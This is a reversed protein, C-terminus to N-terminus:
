QKMQKELSKLADKMKKMKEPDINKMLSDLKELGTKLSDGNLLKNMRDSIGTTDAPANNDNMFNKNKGAQEMGMKMLTGMSFDVKWNGDEKKLPFDFTNNDKSPNTVSVTANDGNIRAEGIQMKKFDESPDNKKVAGPMEGIQEAADMAKKMMQMTSKSDRTALKAAGDIDKKAMREFFTILVARPDNSVSDKGKCGAALIMVAASILFPTIKKKM